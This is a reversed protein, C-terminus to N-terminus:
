RASLETATPRRQMANVPVPFYGRVGDVVQWNGAKKSAYEAGLDLLFPVGDKWSSWENLAWERAVKARYKISGKWEYGDLQFGTSIKLASVQYCVNKAQVYIRDSLDDPRQPNRIKPVDYATYWDGNNNLWQRDFGAM